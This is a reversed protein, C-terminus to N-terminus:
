DRRPDEGPPRDIDSRRSSLRLQGNPPYPMVIAQVQAGVAPYDAFPQYPRDNTVYMVDIVGTLDPAPPLLRVEVGWRQHGTVQAAVLTGAPLRGEAVVAGLESENDIRQVQRDYKGPDAMEESRNQM